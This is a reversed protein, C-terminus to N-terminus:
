KTRRMARAVLRGSQNPDNIARLWNALLNSSLSTIAIALGPFLTLWWAVNLYNRGDAVLTGWDVNPRELGVGLFSLGSAALLVGAIELMAITQMTPSVMPIVDRLMIRLRTAGLSRSAEVFTRERISLAQARAARMYVPLRSIAIVVILNLLSPQLVFLVAVAILLTPISVIVDAIRMVISDVWGGLYGCLVGLLSGIVASLVVVGAAVGFSTRAGFIIQALEPRGLADGGLLYMWGHATDFPESFRWSLHQRNAVTQMFPAVFVAIAAFGVLVVVCALPLPSRLLVRLRLYRATSAVKVAVSTDPADPQTSTPGGTDAVAAIERLEELAATEIPGQAAGQSIDSM